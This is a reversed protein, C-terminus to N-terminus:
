EGSRALREKLEQLVMAEEEAKEGRGTREYLARLAQHPMFERYRLEAARLLSREAAADDGARLRVLGLGLHADFYDERLAIAREFADAAADNRGLDALLKGLEMWPLPHTPDRDIAARLEREAEEPRGLRLALMALNFRPLSYGPDLAASKEFYRAAQAFDGKKFYALGLNNWPRAKEPAKEAADRWLRTADRWTETRKQAAYGAGGAFVLLAATWLAGARRGLGAHELVYAFGRGLVFAYGFLGLYLRREAVLDELPALATPAQTALLWLLGFALSPAARRGLVALAAALALAAPPAWARPDTWAGPVRLDHEVSLASPDVFLRAQRALAPGQARLHEAFSRAPEPPAAWGGLLALVAGVGLAACLAALPAYPALRGRSHLPAGRDEPAPALWDILLLLLPLAATSEKCALGLAFPLPTWLRARPRASTWLLCAWLMFAASLLSSRSSVYVVSETQLPHVAFVLAAAFAAAPPGVGAAAGMRRALRLALAYVLGACLAHLALNVVHYGAPNLGGALYNGLFTLRLLPRM